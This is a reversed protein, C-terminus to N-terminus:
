GPFIVDMTDLRIALFLHCDAVTLNIVFRAGEALAGM